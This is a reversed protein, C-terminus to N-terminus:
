FKKVPKKPKIPKVPKKKNTPLGKTNVKIWKKETNTRYFIEGTTYTVYTILIKNATTAALNQIRGKPLGNKEIKGWKNQTNIRSYIDNKYSLAYLVAVGNIYTVTLEKFRTGKPVGEMSVKNWKQTSSRRAYVSGDTFTAYIFTEDSPKNYMTTIDKLRQAYSSVVALVIALLIVKKM